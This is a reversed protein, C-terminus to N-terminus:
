SIYYIQFRKRFRELITITKKGLLQLFLFNSVAHLTDFPFSAVNATIYGQFSPLALSVYWLNMIWGFLYGCFTGFIALFIPRLNFRRFYAAFVGMLGWALMQYLTWPGQGLLFNSLLATLAGVMFGAVPGFVYGACIILYSCPQIGPLAAFPVRLIASMTGLISIVTIHRAGLATAEFEFFFALITLGVILSTTLGWNVFGSLSCQPFLSLVFSASGVILIVSLLLHSKKM